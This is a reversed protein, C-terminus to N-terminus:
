KRKEKGGRVDANAQIHFVFECGKMAAQLSSTDLVDGKVIQLGSPLEAPLFERRGTTFNDYVVVRVGRSLLEDVIHSGIFGSGGTVLATKFQMCNQPLIM